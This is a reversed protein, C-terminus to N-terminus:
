CFGYSHGQREAGCLLMPRPLRAARSLQDVILVTIGEGSTARTTDTVPTATISTITIGTILPRHRRQLLAAWRVPLEASQPVLPRVTDVLSPLELQLGAARAM